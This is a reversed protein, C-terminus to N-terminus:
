AEILIEVLGDEASVRGDNEGRSCGEPGGNFGWGFRGLATARPGIPGETRPGNEM